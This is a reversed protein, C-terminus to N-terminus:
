PAPRAGPASGGQGRTTSGRKRKQKPQFKACTERHRERSARRAGELEQLWKKRQCRVFEAGHKAMALREGTTFAYLLMEPGSKYYPNTGRADPQEDGLDKMTLKFYRLLNSRAMRAHAPLRRCVDCLRQRDNPRLRAGSSLCYYCSACKPLQPGGALEHALLRWQRCVSRLVSLPLEPYGLRFVHLWIKNPLPLAATTTADASM